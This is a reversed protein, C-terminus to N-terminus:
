QSSEIDHVATGFSSNAPLSAYEIKELSDKQEGAAAQENHKDPMETSEPPNALFSEKQLATKLVEDVTEVPIFKMSERVNEPLDELDAENAAPMIITGLGARAAALVKEKLGGIRLVKGRLTVEGTMGIDPHVSRGTLLSAIATVMTVGASPGDKPLAGEPIHLHLDVDEFFDSAIGLESARSRVYSLAAQASEKMVEGLQGTLVFGKKGPMKTAEFFLIEGGTMTWSLGVAVGPISTRDAIEERQFRRKGLYEVLTDPTIHVPSFPAEAVASLQPLPVDSNEGSDSQGNSALGDGNVKPDEVYGQQSDSDDLGLPLPAQIWYPQMAAITAAVKRCIKGIARELNRVGAERTYDHVIKHLAADDFVIEGERLGNEKIQRAVLYQQAIKVKENETYSSLQIVEMRDRLPGPITDLVNATTIFMVESLDFPVDLYHDRFERNQEPDLVELLASTPDGRFDRGLKDVEDLMFVPNKTEVRRLSQIIRGPMSGIYTRRFGRIEAEDRVGGLALRIFKRDMARAISIGLSTKGVGPPGVFCLLVGERERRIKDHTDEEVEDERQAKRVSRLKRVALYEVIRDKIEDLGYHDEELVDRAHTIDLNDETTQQWPLSVMLDLYTKIVSYEAAQIPMRRMRNLERLAEKHAEDPMGAAAIREELERIDAEQEDEEGLEKQIAKIQERLFFDKQLKEMEGQAQSQIKNGLEMVDVENHLLQTLRLLKEQVSDIEILQQADDMELRMSSAVLYALQRANEVNAAMVALEDPMQGDLEVLRRFLDQVARASGDLELGEELTEPLVEVRARLYPKEQIYEKLRIRELGQVALRITGDPAKLVRHVQAATGIEYIQEPSPEEVSEDRSTVLAIIRSQPLSEEVLQISRQQGITLPLWMMPYVVLGRLPLVPLDDAVDDLKSNPPVEAELKIESAEEGESQDPDIDAEAAAPTEPSKGSADQEEPATEQENEIENQEDKEEQELSM